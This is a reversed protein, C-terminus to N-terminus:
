RILYWLFNPIICICLSYASWMFYTSFSHPPTFLKKPIINIIIFSPRKVRSCRYARAGAKEVIKEGWGLMGAKDECSWRGASCSCHGPGYQGDSGPLQWSRFCLKHVKLLTTFENLLIDNLSDSIYWQCIMSLEYLRVMSICIYVYWQYMLFTGAAKAWMVGKKGVLFFLKGVKGSAYHAYVIDGPRSLRSRLM